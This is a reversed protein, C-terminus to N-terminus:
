PQGGANQVSHDHDPPGSTGPGTLATILNKIASDWNQALDLYQLSALTEGPGIEYDPIECAELMVPFFWQRSRHMMRLRDVAINLEENMFTENKSLYRPSFCAIFSDGSLIAKRIVSKWRTGAQLHTRDLWVDFGGARLGAALRDVADSDEHVYSIFVRKKKALAPMAAGTGQNLAPNLARGDGAGTTRRARSTAALYERVPLGALVQQCRNRVDQVDFIEQTDAAVIAREPLHTCAEFCDLAIPLLASSTVQPLGSIALEPRFMTHWFVVALGLKATFSYSARAMADASVEALVNWPDNGGGAEALVSSLAHGAAQAAAITEVANLRDLHPSLVIEGPAVARAAAGTQRPEGHRATMPAPRPLAVLPRRGSGRNDGIARLVERAMPDTRARHHIMAVVPETAEADLQYCSVAFQAYEGAFRDPPMRGADWAAAIEELIELWRAVLDKTMEPSDPACRASSAAQMFRDAVVVSGRGDLSREECWRPGIHRRQAFRTRFGVPLVPEISGDDIDIVAAVQVGGRAAQDIGSVGVPATVLALCGDAAMSLERVALPLGTPADVDSRRELDGTALDFDSVVLRGTVDDPTMVIMASPGNRPNWNAAVSRFPLTVVLGDCVRIIFNRGQLWDCLHIWSDDSSYSIQPSDLLASAPFDAVMRRRGLVLEYEWLVYGAMLTDDAVHGLRVELVGLHSGRNSWAVAGACSVPVLPLPFADGFRQVYVQDHLHPRSLYPSGSEFMLHFAHDRVWGTGSPLGFAEASPRRCFAWAGARLHAVGMRDVYDPHTLTAGREDVVVTPAECGREDALEFAVRLAEYPSLSEDILASEGVVLQM